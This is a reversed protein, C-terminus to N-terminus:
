PAPQVPGHEADTAFGEPYPVGLTEPTRECGVCIPFGYSDTAFCVPGDKLVCPTMDSKAYQCKM